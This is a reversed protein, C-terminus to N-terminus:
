LKKALNLLYAKLTIGMERINRSARPNHTNVDIAGNRSEDFNMAIAALDPVTALGYMTIDAPFAGMECKITRKLTFAQGTATGAMERTFTGIDTKTTFATM